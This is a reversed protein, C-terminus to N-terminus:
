TRHHRNSYRIDKKGQPHILKNIKKLFSFFCHALQALIAFLTVSFFLLFTSQASASLFVTCAMLFSHHPNKAAPSKAWRLQGYYVILRLRVAERM